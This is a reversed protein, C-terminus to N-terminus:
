NADRKEKVASLLPKLVEQIFNFTLKTGRNPCSSGTMWWVGTLNNRAFGTRMYGRRVALIENTKVDLVILEGGAIGLDRDYPRNIGRWTYGYRSQIDSVTSEAVIYPVFVGQGDIATQYKRGPYANEDRYYRRYREDTNASKSLPIELFQYRGTAPQVYTDQVLYSEDTTHGYPDELIYLHQLEDDTARKRPRMMYLGDVNEVTKYIFEGAETKCLHDFYQEPTMGPRYGSDEPVPNPIKISHAFRGEETAMPDAPKLKLINCATDNPKLKAKACNEAFKKMARDFYRGPTEENSLAGTACGAIILIMLAPSIKGIWRSTM